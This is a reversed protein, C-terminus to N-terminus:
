PPSNAAREPLFPGESDDDEFRGTPAIANAHISERRLINVIGANIWSLCPREGARQAGEGLCIAFTM